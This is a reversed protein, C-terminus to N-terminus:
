PFASDRLFLKNIWDHQAYDWESSEFEPCCVETRDLVLTDKYQLALNM